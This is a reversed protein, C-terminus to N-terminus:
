LCNAEPSNGNLTLTWKQSAFSIANLFGSSPIRGTALSSKKRPIQLNSFNMEWELQPLRATLKRPGLRKLPLNERESKTRTKASKLFPKLM